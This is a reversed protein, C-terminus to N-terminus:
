DEVVWPDRTMTRIDIGIDSRNQWWEEPVGNLDRDILTNLMDVVELMVSRDSSGSDSPTFCWSYDTGPPKIWIAHTSKRDHMITVITNMEHVKIHLMDTSQIESALHEPLVIAESQVELNNPKPVVALPRIAFLLNVGLSMALAITLSIHIIIHKHINMKIATSVAREPVQQGTPNGM